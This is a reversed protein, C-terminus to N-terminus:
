QCGARCRWGGCGGFLSATAPNVQPIMPTDSRNKVAPSDVITESMRPITAIGYERLPLRLTASPRVGLCLSRAFAPYTIPITM